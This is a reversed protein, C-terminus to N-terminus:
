IYKEVVKDKKELKDKIECIKSCYGWVYDDSSDFYSRRCYKCYKKDMIYWRKKIIELIIM